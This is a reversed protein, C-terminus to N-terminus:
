EFDFIEQLSVYEDAIMINLKKNNINNNEKSLDKCYLNRVNLIENSYYDIIEHYKKDILEKEDEFDQIYDNYIKYLEYNNEPYDAVPIISPKLGRLRRSKRRTYLKRDHNDDIDDYYCNERKIFTLMEM